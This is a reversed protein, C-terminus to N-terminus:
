ALEFPPPDDTSTVRAGMVARIEDATLDDVERAFALKRSSLASALEEQHDDVHEEYRKRRPVLIPKLGADLASLASGSGSHAIVLDARSLAYDLEAAPLSPRADIGLGWTDTSGTQWLVDADEPLIEVLREVLRRFGFPNTGLTVVIRHKRRPRRPAAPVFGEFVSGRYQWPGDEWCEHQTYLNVHPMRELLRGTVSPGDCRASCEIYHCEAGLMRALPIFSLAVGAGTSVVCDVRHKRLLRSAAVANLAISKADRSPTDRVFVVQRGELLSRSQPTDFTVWLEEDTGGGPLRPALQALDKLHGGVSALMLKMREASRRGDARNRIGRGTEAGLM